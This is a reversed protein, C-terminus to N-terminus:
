GALWYTPNLPGNFEVSTGFHSPGRFGVDVGEKVQNFTAINNLCSLM